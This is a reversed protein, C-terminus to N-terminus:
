TEALLLAHHSGASVAFDNYGRDNIIALAGVVLLRAGWLSAPDQLVAPVARPSLPPAAVLAPLPCALRGPCSATSCAAGIGCSSCLSNRRQRGAEAIELGEGQERAGTGAARAAEAGQAGKHPPPPPPPRSPPPPLLLRRRHGPQVLLILNFNRRAPTSLHTPSNSPAPAWAAERRTDGLWEPSRDAPSSVRPALARRALSARGRSRRQQLPSCLWGLAGIGESVGPPGLLIFTKRSSLPPPVRLGSVCCLRRQAARLRSRDAQKEM